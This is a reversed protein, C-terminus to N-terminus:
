LEAGAPTEMGFWLRPPSMVLLVRTGLAWIVPTWPARSVLIPLLITPSTGSGSSTIHCL